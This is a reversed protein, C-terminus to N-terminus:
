DKKPTAAAPDRVIADRPPPTLFESSLDKAAADAADRIRRRIDEGAIDSQRLYADERGLTPAEVTKGDALAAFQTKLSDPERCVISTGVRMASLNDIIIKEGPQLGKSIAAFDAYEKAVTVPRREAVNKASAVWVYDGSQDTLIGVRPALLWEDRSVTQINLLVFQGPTLEGDPNPFIAQLAATGTEPDIRNDTRVVIGTEPYERGNEFFLRVRFDAFQKASALHEGLERLDRDAPSFQVLVRSQDVITSLTGSEPGVLNGADYRNIGMWGDFPAAIQTYALNIEAQELQGQMTSLNADAKMKSALANDYDQVSAAQQEVLEKQRLVTLEANKKSAIAVGLNGMAIKRAADYAYPEIRYLLKGKRVFEGDRFNREVLYGGVRAVLNVSAFPQVSGIISIQRPVKGAAASFIAVKVSAPLTPPKEERCGGPIIILAVAFLAVTWARVSFTAM